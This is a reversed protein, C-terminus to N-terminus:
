EIEVVQTMDLLVDELLIPKNVSETFQAFRWFSKRSTQLETVLVTEFYVRVQMNSVNYTVTGVDIDGYKDSFNNWFEESNQQTRVVGNSEFLHLSFDKDLQMEEYNNQMLVKAEELYMEEPNQANEGSLTMELEPSIPSVPGDVERERIDSLYWVTFVLAVILAIFLLKLGFQRQKEQNSNAM